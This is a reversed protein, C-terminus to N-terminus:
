GRIRRNGSNRAKQKKMYFDELLFLPGGLISTSGIIISLIGLFDMKGGLASHTTLVVHKEGAFEAVDFNSTINMRYTGKDLGDIKGWL